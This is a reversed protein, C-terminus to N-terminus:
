RSSTTSGTEGRTREPKPMIGIKEYYRITEIHVETHESVAGIPFERLKTFDLM